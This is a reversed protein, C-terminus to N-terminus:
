TGTLIAAVIVTLGALVVMAVTYNGGMVKYSSTFKPRGRWIMIGPLVVLLLSSAAGGLSLIKSFKPYVISIILPPALTVLILFIKSYKTKKLHFGDSFFGFLSLSVGLFSTLLAFFNFSDFGVSITNDTVSKTLALALNTVKDGKAAQIAALGDATDYPIVGMICFVWTLYTLFSIVSGWIIAKRTEKIDDELYTKMSPVIIQFGFSVSIIPLASWLSGNHTALILPKSVKPVLLTILFLYAAVLFFMCIRNINDIARTGSYLLIAAIIVFYIQYLSSPIRYTLKATVFENTMNGIGVVYATLVAYILVVYNLWALVEGPLGLTQKAISILNVEGKFWACLELLLLSSALMVAWTIFLIFSTPILGCQATAIPLALLGVGISTGAILFVAGATKSSLV